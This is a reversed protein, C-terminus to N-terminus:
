LKVMFKGAHRTEFLEYMLLVHEDSLDVVPPIM